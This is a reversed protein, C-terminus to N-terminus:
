PVLLAWFPEGKTTEHNLNHEYFMFDRLAFGKTSLIACELAKLAGYLM